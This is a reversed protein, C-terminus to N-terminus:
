ATVRMHEDFIVVVQADACIATAVHLADTARLPVQQSITALLREAERHVEPLLQLHQFQRLLLLRWAIPVLLGM